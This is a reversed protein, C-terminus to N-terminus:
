KLPRVEAPGKAIMPAWVEEFATTRDPSVIRLIDITREIESATERGGLGGVLRGESTWSWEWGSKSSARADLWLLRDEWVYIRFVPSHRSSRTRVEAELKEFRGEATQEFVKQILFKSTRNGISKRRRELASSLSGLLESDFFPFQGQSM